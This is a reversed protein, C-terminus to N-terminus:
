CHTVAQPSRRRDTWDILGDGGLHVLGGLLAPPFNDKNSLGSICVTSVLGARVCPACHDFSGVISTQDTIDKPKLLTRNGPNVSCLYAHHPLCRM